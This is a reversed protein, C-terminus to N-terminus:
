RITRTAGISTLVRYRSACLWWRKEVKSYAAAVIDNGSSAGRKGTAIEVSDWFVPVVSCGDGRNNFTPCRGEFNVTTADQGVQFNIMRYERFNRTVDDRESTVEGPEPCFSTSGFNRMIYDADKINTDSFDLLFQRSMAGVEKISDHLSVTVTKGVHQEFSLPGDPNGYKETVTLTIVVDVPTAATASVPAQAPATWTVTGGTGTFTGVSAAWAYQLQDVATEPDTVKASVVVTEGLDAFNAPEKARTGQITISEITPVTNSPPPQQGGGSGGSGGGGPTPSPRISSGGCAAIIVAGVCAVLGAIFRRM